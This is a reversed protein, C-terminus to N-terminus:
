PKVFSSPPSSVVIGFDVSCGTQMDIQHRVLQQWGKECLRSWFQCFEQRCILISALKDTLFKFYFISSKVNVPRFQCFDPRCALKIGLWSSGVRRVCDSVLNSLFGAQADLDFGAQRDFSQFFSSSPM